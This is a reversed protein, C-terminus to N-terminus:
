KKKFQKIAELFSPHAAAQDQYYAELNLIDALPQTEAAQLLKKLNGMLTSSQLALQHCHLLCSAELEESSLIKNILGLAEAEQATLSKNSSFIEFAKKYGLQKVLLYSAGTDPLLAIKLFPLTFLADQATYVVDCALALSCGAGAAAGTVQAVVPKSSNRIALVMPNFLETVITGAHAFEKPDVSFLDLGACFGKGMGKIRIVKTADDITLEQIVSAIEQCLETNLANYREPRNLVVTSVNNQKEVFLFNYM